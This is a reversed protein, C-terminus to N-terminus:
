SKRRRGSPDAKPCAPSQMGCAAALAAPLARLLTCVKAPYILPVIGSM